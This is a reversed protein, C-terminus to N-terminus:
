LPYVWLYIRRCNDCQMISEVMKTSQYSLFSERTVASYEHKTITDLRIECCAPCYPVIDNDTQITRTTIM